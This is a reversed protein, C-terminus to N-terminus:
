SHVYTRIYTQILDVGGVQRAQRDGGLLVEFRRLLPRLGYFHDSGELAAHALRQTACVSRQRGDELTRLGATALSGCFILAALMGFLLLFSLLKVQLRTPREKAYCRLCSCCSCSSCLFYLSFPLWLFLFAFPWGQAVVFSADIEQAMAEMDEVGRANLLM